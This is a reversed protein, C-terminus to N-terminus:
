VSWKKSKFDLLLRQMWKTILTFLTVMLLWAHGHRLVNFYLGGSQDTYLNVVPDQCVSEM